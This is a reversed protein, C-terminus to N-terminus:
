GGAGSAHREANAIDLCHSAADVSDIGGTSAHWSACQKMEHPRAPATRVSILWLSAAMSVISTAVARWAKGHDLEFVEAPLSRQVDGLTVSDPVPKGIKDYGYKAAIAQREEDSM